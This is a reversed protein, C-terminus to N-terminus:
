EGFYEYKLNIWSTSTIHELILRNFPERLNSEAPYAFGYSLPELNNPLVTLENSLKKEKIKFKLLPSDHVFADLRDAALDDFGGDVDAYTFYNIRREKLFEESTSGEVTGVRVSYLDNVGTISGGLQTVTLSSAIAATFSSIIIIAAFMWVLAVLRGGVTKPSKDGYGVTTMTVAAWWFSSGLGKTIGDGFEERNKKREFLWTIFGIVFLVIALFGVAKFFEISFIQKATQWMGGSSNSQVAIGLGSIFYPHSFDMRAERESTITLPAVAVDVEGKEVALVLEDLEYGTIKFEYNLKDSVHNFLDFSIGKWVSDAEPYSFPEAIKTGIILKNKAFCNGTLFLFALLSVFLYNKM